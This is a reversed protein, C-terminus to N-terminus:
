SKTTFINSYYDTLSKLKRQYLADDTGAKARADKEAKALFFALDREGAKNAADPAQSIDDIKSM